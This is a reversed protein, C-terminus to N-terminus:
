KVDRQDQQAKLPCKATPNLRDGNEYDGLYDRTRGCEARAGSQTIRMYACDNCVEIIPLARLRRVEAILTDVDRQSSAIDCGEAYKPRADLAREEIAALEEKSM